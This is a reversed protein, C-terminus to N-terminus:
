YIGGWCLLVGILIPGAMCITAGSKNEEKRYYPMWHKEESCQMVYQLLYAFRERINKLCLMHLLSFVASVAMTVFLFNLIHDSPFFPACLGLLKVDGAGIMGLRFFPFLLFIIVAALSLYKVLYVLKGQQWACASGWLLLLLLLRNPIRRQSYDFFCAALLGLILGIM